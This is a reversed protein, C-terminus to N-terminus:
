DRPRDAAASQEAQSSLDGAPEEERKPLRSGIAPYRALFSAEDLPCGAEDWFEWSGQRRWGDVGRACPKGNSHYFTWTGTEFGIEFEGQCWTQGNESFFTWFGHKDGGNHYLPGRGKMGNPCRVEHVGYLFDYMRWGLWAKARRFM